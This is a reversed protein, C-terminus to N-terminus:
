TNAFNSTRGISVHAGSRAAHAVLVPHVVVLNTLYTKLLLLLRETGTRELKLNTSLSSKVTERSRLRPHDPVARGVFAERKDGPVLHPHLM